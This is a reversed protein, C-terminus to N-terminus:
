HTLEVEVSNPFAARRNARKKLYLFGITAVLSMAGMLNWLAEFGFHHVTQTGLPPGIVHALSYTMTFLGMYAGRNEESARSIAFTNTFPMNFMEGISLIIMSTIAIFFSSGVTLNLMIYAVGYMSVGIWINDIAKIKRELTYVLPMETFAILLGNLALINGITMESFELKEKYFVPLTYLFQMFVIAGILTLFLFFLYEKDRYPSQSPGTSISVEQEKEVKKAKMFFVFLLAAAMCTLGDAWFLTWYGKYSVLWGGIAPGMAWGFNIAMRILSFARTRNEPKSYVAIATMVAPRLADAITSTLFVILGMLVITDVFGLMIFMLGGGFLSWFMVWYYGIKDTLYGGLYSGALSGLGFCLLVWGAEVISFGLEITMYVSLFPIVMTGSRNIFTVLSLLWIQPSFGSISKRYLSFVKLSM